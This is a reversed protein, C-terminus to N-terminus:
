ARVIFVVESAKPSVDNGLKIALNGSCYTAELCLSVSSMGDSVHLFSAVM